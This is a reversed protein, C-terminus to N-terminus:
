STLGGRDSCRHAFTRRIRVRASGGDATAPTGHPKPALGIEPLNRGNGGNPCREFSWGTHHKRQACHFAAKAGGEEQGRSGWRETVVSVGGRLSRRPQGDHTRRPSEHANAGPRKRELSGLMGLPVQGCCTGPIFGPEVAQITLVVLGGGELSCRLRRAPPKEKRLFAAGM